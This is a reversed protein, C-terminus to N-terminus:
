RCLQTLRGTGRPPGLHAPAAMPPALWLSPVQHNWGCCLALGPPQSEHKM